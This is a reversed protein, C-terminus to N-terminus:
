PGRQNKGAREAKIGGLDLKRRRKGRWRGIVPRLNDGPGIAGLEAHGRAEIDLDPFLAEFYRAEHHLSGALFYQQAIGRLIAGADNVDEIALRPLLEDAPEVPGEAEGEPM